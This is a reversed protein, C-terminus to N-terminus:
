AKLFTHMQCIFFYCIFTYIPLRINLRITKIHMSFFLNLGIRVLLELFRLLFISNKELNINRWLWFLWKLEIKWFFFRPQSKWLKVNGTASCIRVEKKRYMHRRNTCSNYAVFTFTDRCCLFFFDNFYNENCTM